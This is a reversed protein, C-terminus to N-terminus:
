GPPGFNAYYRSMLVAHQHEAESWRFPTTPRPHLREYLAGALSSAGILVLLGWVVMAGDAM